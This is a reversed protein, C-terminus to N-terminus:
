DESETLQNEFDVAWDLFRDALELHWRVHTNFGDTKILSHLFMFDRNKNIEALHFSDKFIESKLLEKLDGIATIRQPSPRDKFAFQSTWNFLNIFTELGPSTVGEVLLMDDLVDVLRTASDRLYCGCENIRDRLSYTKMHRAHGSEELLESLRHYRFYAVAEMSSEFKLIEFLDLEDIRVFFSDATTALKRLKRNNSWYRIYNERSSM